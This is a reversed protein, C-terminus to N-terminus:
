GGAGSLGPRGVAAGAREAIRDTARVLAATIGPESLAHGARGVMELRAAPWAQALRWASAPPCIMDYRGQVITGPIGAIRAMNHLIAQDPALFGGHVFYHNEIRAFARAYDAPADFAVGENDISALANEWGAWIRAHRIEERLDGCFLRRHYAAILDGREPEPIPAVFREWLDPWFAGAGGGYFWDLEPRTMLFVGRLVLHRVRDPYSQAYLLALTAGWSGGFVCAWAEIGLRARIREIDAVLHWTTNAEVAAHPRSRGCGRQDFLVIRFAAPDFYRRMAPSCGGGPGGHLVVVPLGRPNGCEEVHLRHGGGVDLMHTAFPEIAPYLAPHPALRSRVPASVKDM